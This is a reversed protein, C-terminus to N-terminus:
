WLAEIEYAVKGSPIHYVKDEKIEFIPTLEREKYVKDKEIRFIFESSAWPCVRNGRIEYIPVSDLGAFIKQDEIRYAVAPSLPVHLLLELHPEVRKARNPKKNGTMFVPATAAVMATIGLRHPISMEKQATFFSVVILVCWFFLFWKIWRWM